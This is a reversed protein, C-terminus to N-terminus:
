SSCQIIYLQTGSKRRVKGPEREFDVFQQTPLRDEHRESWTNSVFTLQLNIGNSPYSQLVDRDTKKIGLFVNILISFLKLFQIIICVFNSVIILLWRYIGNILAFKQWLIFIMFKYFCFIAFVIM